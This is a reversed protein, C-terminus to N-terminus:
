HVQNSSAAMTERGDKGQQRCNITSMFLRVFVLLARRRREREREQDAQQYSLGDSGRERRSEKKRKDNMDSLRLHSNSCSSADSGTVDREVSSSDLGSEAAGGEGGVAAHVVVVVVVVFYM